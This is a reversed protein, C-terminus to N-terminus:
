RGQLYSDNRSAVRTEIIELAGANEGAIGELGLRFSSMLLKAREGAGAPVNELRLDIRGSEVTGALRIALLDRLSKSFTLALASVAACVLNESKKASADHGTVSFGALGGSADLRFEVTIM